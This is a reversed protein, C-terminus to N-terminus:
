NEDYAAELEALLGNAMTLEEDKKTLQANKGEISATLEDIQAQYPTVDGWCQKDVELTVEYSDYNLSYTIDKVVFSYGEPLDFDPYNDRLKVVTVQSWDIKEIEELSNEEFCREFLITYGKKFDLRRAGSTRHGNVSYNAGFQSETKM